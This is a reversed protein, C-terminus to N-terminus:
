KSKEAFWKEWAGKDVGFSEGTMEALQGAIHNQFEHVSVWEDALLSFDAGLLEIMEKVAGSDSSQGIREIMGAITLTSPIKQPNKLIRNRIARAISAAHAEGGDIRSLEWSLGNLDEIPTQPNELMKAFTAAANDSRRLLLMELENRVEGAKLGPLKERVAAIIKPGAYEELDMSWFDVDIDSMFHDLVLPDDRKLMEIFLLRRHYDPEPFIEALKLLVDTKVFEPGTALVDQLIASAYDAPTMKAPNADMLGLMRSIESMDVREIEDDEGSQLKPKIDQAKPPVAIMLKIMFDIGDKSRTECLHKPISSYVVTEGPSVKLCHIALEQLWSGNDVRVKTLSAWSYVAGILYIIGEHPKNAAGPKVLEKLYDMGRKDGMAALMSAYIHRLTQDIKTNNIRKSITDKSADNANRLTYTIHPWNRAVYSRATTEGSAINRRFAPEALLEFVGDNMKPTDEYLPGFRNGENDSDTEGKLKVDSNVIVSYISLDRATKLSIQDLSARLQHKVSGKVRVQYGHWNTEYSESRGAKDTLYVKKGDYEFWWVGNLSWLTGVLEVDKGDMKTLDVLQEKVPVVVEPSAEIAEASTVFYSFIIRGGFEYGDRIEGKLRYRAGKKPEGFYKGFVFFHVLETPNLSIGGIEEARMEVKWSGVSLSPFGDDMPMEAVIEVESGFPFDRDGIKLGFLDCSIQSPAASISMALVAWCLIALIPYPM